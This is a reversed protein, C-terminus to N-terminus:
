YPNDAPPPAAPTPPKPVAPAPTAARAPASVPAPAPVAAVGPVAPKPAAPAAPTTPKESKSQATEAPAPPAAEPEPGSSVPMAEETVPAASTPAVASTAPEPTAKADEQDRYRTLLYVALLVALAGGVVKVVTPVGSPRAAKVPLADSSRGETETSLPESTARAAPENREPLGHQRARQARERGAKRESRSSRTGSRKAM